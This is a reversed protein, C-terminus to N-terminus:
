DQAGAVLRFPRAPPSEPAAGKRDKLLLFPKEVVYHLVLAALVSVGAYVPLFILAQVAPALTDLGIAADLSRRVAPFLTLHILYLGFSIRALVLLGRHRLLGGPGGGLAAGLVLGGMGVALVTQLGTKAFLGVGDDLLPAGALLGAVPVLAGWFLWNGAGRGVVHGRDRYLLACLTGVALGDFSVHFPSRFLPFFEAYTTVEPYALYTLGRLVLPVLALAAVAAYQWARRRLKFLLMFILPAVLYFKEEVGLSWFSVVINAPLYDQFFLMHYAVRVGLADAGPPYAPIWGLAVVFLVAYYTPVIRLARKILYDRVGTAGFGGSWRRLIHHAILFGSLVFFLDVGIWGNLLPVAADWGALPFLPAAEEWFPRIGHRAVVLLIAFARLGDLEAIAGHGRAFAFYGRVPGM